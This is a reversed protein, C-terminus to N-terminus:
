VNQVETEEEQLISSVEYFQQSVRVILFSCSTKFYHRVWKGQWQSVTDWVQLKFSSLNIKQETNCDRTLQTWHLIAKVTLCPPFLAAKTMAALFCDLSAELLSTWGELDCRPLAVEESWVWRRVALLSLWSGFTRLTHPTTSSCSSIFWLLNIYDLFLSFGM